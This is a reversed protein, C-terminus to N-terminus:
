PRLSRTGQTVYRQYSRAHQDGHLHSGLLLLKPCDSQWPVCLSVLQTFRTTRVLHIQHLRPLLRLYQPLSSCTAHMSRILRALERRAPGSPAPRHRTRANQAVASLLRSKSTRCRRRSGTRHWTTVVRYGHLIIFINQPSLMHNPLHMKDSLLRALGVDAECGPALREETYYIM